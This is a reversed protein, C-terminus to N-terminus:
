SNLTRAEGESRPTNFRQRSTSRLVKIELMRELRRYVEGMGGWGIPAFVEYAGIRGGTTVSM